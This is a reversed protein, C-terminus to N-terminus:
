ITFFDPNNNGTLDIPERFSHSRCPRITKGPLVRVDAGEEFRIAVLLPDPADPHPRLPLAFAGSADSLTDFPNGSLPPQASVTM